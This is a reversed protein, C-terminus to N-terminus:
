GFFTTPWAQRLEAVQFIPHAVSQKRRIREARTWGMSPPPSPELGVPFEQPALLQTTSLQWSPYFWLVEVDTSSFVAYILALFVKEETGCSSNDCNESSLALQPFACIQVWTLIRVQTFCLNGSIRNKGPSFNEGPLLLICMKRHLLSCESKSVISLLPKAATSFCIQLKLNNGKM